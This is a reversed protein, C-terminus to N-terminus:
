ENTVADNTFSAIFFCVPGPHWFLLLFYKADTCIYCLLYVIIFIIGIVSELLFVPLVSNAYYQLELIYPLSAFPKYYLLKRNNNSVDTSWEVRITDVNILNKGLLTSARKILSPSGGFDSISKNRKNIEERLWNM